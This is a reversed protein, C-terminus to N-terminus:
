RTIHKTLKADLSVSSGHLQLITWFTTQSHRASIFLARGSFSMMLLPLMFYTTGLGTQTKWCSYFRQLIVMDMDVVIGNCIGAKFETSIILQIAGDGKKIGLFVADMIELCILSCNGSLKVGDWVLQTGFYNIINRPKAKSKEKKRKAHYLKLKWKHIFCHITDLGKSIWQWHIEWFLIDATIMAM